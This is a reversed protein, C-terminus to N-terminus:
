QEFLPLANLWSVNGKQVQACYATPGNVLVWYPCQLVQHYRLLQQLTSDTVPVGPEKCEILMWPKLNRDYVVIDYRKRMSGVRLEKEVSFLTSPYQLKQTLYLIVHQRVWEEPTLVVYKKRLADFIYQKGSESKLRFNHQPYQIHIM